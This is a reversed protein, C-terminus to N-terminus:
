RRHLKKILLLMRFLHLALGPHFSSSTSLSLLCPESHPMLILMFHTEQPPLLKGSWAMRWDCPMNIRGSSKQNALWSFERFVPRPSLYKIPCLFHMRLSRPCRNEMWITHWDTYCFCCCTISLGSKILYGGEDNASSPSQVIKHRAPSSKPGKRSIGVSGGVM